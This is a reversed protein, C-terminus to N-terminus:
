QSKVIFEGDTIIKGDITTNDQLKYEESKLMIVYFINTETDTTKISGYKVLEVLSAMNNSMVDLVVQHIEDVADSPTSKQSLHIVNWNNFSGLVPWYTCKTFTKYREKEDLTIGYIWPKDLM